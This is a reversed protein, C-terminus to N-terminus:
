PSKIESALEELLEVMKEPGDVTHSAHSPGLGVKITWADSPLARFMDEDTTDDGAALIFHPKGQPEELWHLAAMGKDVGANRVELTKNGPVVQVDMNTMVNLLHRNLERIRHKASEMESKRFHFVLSYEKEEVFSGPLKDIYEKMVPLLKRKWSRRVHKLLRWKLGKERIFLGHEAILHVPLKGFWQDLPQRNRGSILVVDTREASSLRELLSLLKKGPRAEAPSNAFLRLTGDYDLFLTRWGAKRMAQKLKGTLGEDLTRSMMDQQQQKVGALATLFDEAWRFVTYTSTRKQMSRLCRAQEATPTELALAISEGIEEINNPNIIIAESLEDVAGAMESLVLVGKMNTRSAIYEKAVLNMGDRLPTVLAVDCTNYLALLEHFSLSRYQYFVPTWSLRGFRGNIRGVLEDIRTKLSQYQDVGIRSPVVILMLSVKNRWRPNTELFHEYGKLRNLIGKSYDQRDISLVLKIRGTNKRINRKERAVGADKPASHFKRYDIGMPFSDVKVQRGNWVVDGMHNNIGSIRLSSHLFYSRYDHTHFGILDAGYMGELIRRRWQSPMMRFVDFAPFPIHLFFGITADPQMKRIMAPLLMLHYDHVWILDGPQVVELVTNCFVENVHIYQEWNEKLYSAYAPFYHFLPWITKNCFGKYFTDVERTSLFVCHANFRELVESRIQEKNNATTGPWGIWTIESPGKRAKRAGEVFASLGSALGGASPEFRFGKEDTAINVPLRNSVIVLRM